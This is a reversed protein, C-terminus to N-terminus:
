HRDPACRMEDLRLRRPNGGERWALELDFHSGPPLGFTVMGMNWDGPQFTQRTPFLSWRFAVRAARSVQRREWEAQWDMELRPPQPNGKAPIVRWGSLDMELPVAADAPNRIITQFVCALAVQEGDVPQFGRGQFYARSQDPLLQNFIFSAGDGHWQWSELGTAPDRSHEVGVAAAGGAVFLAPLVLLMIWHTRTM